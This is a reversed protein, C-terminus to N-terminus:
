LLARPRRFDGRQAILGAEFVDGAFADQHERPWRSHMADM